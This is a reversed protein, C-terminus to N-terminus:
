FETSVVIQVDAHTPARGTLARFEAVAAELHVRLALQCPGDATLDDHSVVATRPAADIHHHWRVLLKEVDTPREPKARKKSARIITM